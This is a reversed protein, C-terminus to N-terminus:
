GRHVVNKWRPETEWMWMEITQKGASEAPPAASPETESPQSVESAAPPPAAPAACAALAVGASTLTGLRLFERRSIHEM